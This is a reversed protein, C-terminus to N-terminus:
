NDLDMLFRIRKLVDDARYPKQIFEKAGAKYMKSIIKPDLFSSAFIVKVKDNISKIKKVLEFGSLKPLGMDIIVLDIGKQNAYYVDFGEIGDRAHLFKYGKGQLLDILAKALMDEDEVVLITETGHFNKPKVVEQPKEELEELETFPFYLFLTTGKGPSSEVNILGRHGQVIGYVTALGLGTGKGFEKTTFFREVMRRKTKEDMGVGTDAINICVYKDEVVEPFMKRLEMASVVKLSVHGLIIALINNFDHAIEGTLTGISEM